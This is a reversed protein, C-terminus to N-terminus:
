RGTKMMLLEGKTNFIFLKVSRFIYGNKWAEKKTGAGIIEDKDDVFVIKKM